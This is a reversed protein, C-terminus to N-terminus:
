AEQQDEEEQSLHAMKGVEVQDGVVLTRDLSCVLRQKISVQFQNIMAPTITGVEQMRM